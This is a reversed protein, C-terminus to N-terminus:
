KYDHDPTIRFVIVTIVEDEIKYIIRGEKSFCSARYGKWKGFLAHDDWKSQTVLSDPGHLEVTRRWLKLITVDDNSISGNKFHTLLETEAEKTMSVLWM